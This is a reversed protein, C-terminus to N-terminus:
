APTAPNANRFHATPQDFWTNGVGRTSFWSRAVIIHSNGGADDHWYDAHIPFVVVSAARVLEVHRRLDHLSPRTGEGDAPPSSHACVMVSVALEEALQRLGEAANPTEGADASLLGEVPDVVVLALGTDTHLEACMDHLEPLSLLPTDCITFSAPSLEARARQLQEWQREDLYGSRIRVLPVGSRLGLMRTAIETGLEDTFYLVPRQEDMAHSAIGLALATKGAGASGGILMLEGPHLGGTFCDLDKLGTSVSVVRGGGRIHDVFQFVQDVLETLSSTTVRISAPRM